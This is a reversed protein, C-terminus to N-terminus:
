SKVIGHKILTGVALAVAVAIDQKPWGREALIQAAELKKPNLARHYPTSEKTYSVEEWLSLPRPVM